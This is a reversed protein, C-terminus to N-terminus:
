NVLIKFNSALFQDFRTHRTYSQKNGNLFFPQLEILCSKINVGEREKKEVWNIRWTTCSPYREMAQSRPYFGPFHCSQCTMEFFFFSTAKELRWILNSQCDEWAIFSARDPIKGGGCFYLQARERKFIFYIKQHVNRMSLLDSIVLTSFRLPLAYLFTREDEGPQPDIKVHLGLACSTARRRRSTRKGDGNSPPRGNKM